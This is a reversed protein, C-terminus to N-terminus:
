PYVLFFTLYSFSFFFHTHSLSLFSNEAWSQRRRSKGFTCRVKQYHSLLIKAGSIQFMFIYGFPLILCVSTIRGLHPKQPRFNDVLDISSSEQRIYEPSTGYVYDNKSSKFTWQFFNDREVNYYILWKVFFRLIRSKLLTIFTQWLYAKTRGGLEWVYVDRLSLIQEDMHRLEIYYLCSFTTSLLSNSYCTPSRNCPQRHMWM